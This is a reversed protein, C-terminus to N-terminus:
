YKGIVLAVNHGGFGMTNSVAYRYDGRRAEGTVVDLDIEPDLHRLNLTPPVVGDRVTQVTVVAEVAGSAGMTHGLAAKPATVAPQHTGFAKRIACAEAADGIITGAAHANIHDVDPPTLGALDLARTIASAAMEGSPDPEILDHADANTAVGMLRALITAGRATAHEESEVLLLAGGEGFVMGDRDRDFPRCAGEPDADNTSLLGMNNFAVIPLPEIRSEVGGCIAVDAEGLAILRWAEAIASAGSADATTPAIVGAKAKRELGVAAAPANPMHMQVALPSIARLGRAKFEEYGTWLDLTSGFAHSVSVLLRRTDVEPAGAADWLRRSLVLAMKQMYSLRRIEVRSLQADFDEKVRGGIHAPLDFRDGLYDGLSEIGSEGARLASWTGEADTALATTSAVATVVVAPRQVAGSTAM